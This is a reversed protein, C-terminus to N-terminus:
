LVPKNFIEIATKSGALLSDDGWQWPEGGVNLIEAGAEKAILLGALWNHTDLDAQHFLDIRGAGIYALQLGHPGYNRVIGFRDLLRVYAKASKGQWDVGQKLQHGYEAVVVMHRPDQRAGAALRKGNLFAGSGNMAWFIEDTLPDYIVALHPQGNKILVINITWGAIHQVYQIAGDMTDCLWYQDHQAPRKQSEGDFENDDVWPTGPFVGALNRQLVDLCRVELTHVADILEDFTQPIQTRRFDTLFLNGTLKVADLVTNVHQEM